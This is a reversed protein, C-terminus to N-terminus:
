HGYFFIFPPTNSVFCLLLFFPTNRFRLLVHSRPPLVKGRFGWLFAGQVFCFFDVSPCLIRPYFRTFCLTPFAGTWIFPLSFWGLPLFYLLSPSPLVHILMSAIPLLLLLSKSYFLSAHAGALFFLFASTDSRPSLVKRVIFFFPGTGVSPRPPPLYLSCVPESPPTSVPSVFTGSSVASL